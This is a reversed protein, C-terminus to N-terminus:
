QQSTWPLMLGDGRRRPVVHVHLHGVTQTAAAGVSTIINCSEMGADDAWLAAVKSVRAFVDPNALADDQHARPVVLVHGPTVPNLPEIVFVDGLDLLMPNPGAYDCFACAGKPKEVLGPKTM